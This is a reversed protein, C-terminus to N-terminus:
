AYQDLACELMLAHVFAQPLNGRLQRESVDFEEALLGPPGCAARNREFWRAAEVRDGQQAYALALFFGCLLFSGESEGLPREDPRYRYCYGDRTLEAEVAHLTAVSRPDAAPVAGRIAALLLAADPRPDTPSRQWRGSPHLAHAATDSVLEDALSVWRAAQEEGPSEAAIQRLGAACILRSHTWADPEIEWIGADTDPERWRGEIAEVAIEAARWGNSDLHDHRGAAAFLLLSEGFADLQFQENVWNGVIDSGGPYGPLDLKRQDPVRGGSTTYAPTLNPGDELLRASVFRVADDMLPLPGAKAVAQGTYCQDRIWAFRYDFNRGQRAHEPLSTTAAAVMGGSAATLGTLVAYAHRADRPAVSNELEPVRAVWDAETGQWARDPDPPEVDAGEGALVLVLDHHRGEELELSLILERGGHGDARVDADAGGSWAIRTEGVAGTWTGDDRKSLKTLGEDGFEGRPNLAVGVRATGKLAIVRRLIVARDASAPLALAERCEVTASGSVWRSHWIMTGPEYYGGWVFRDEPTISYGGSGGILSSFVAGSDWCPFCMWSYDGRPSVLVGREGDALLAYDRLTHPHDRDTIPATESRTTM